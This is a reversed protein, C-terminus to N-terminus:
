GKSLLGDTLSQPSPIFRYELTHLSFIYFGKDGCSDDQYIPYPNGVYIIQCSGFTNESRPHFHGSFVRNTRSALERPDIGGTFISQPGSKCHSIALHGFVADCEPIDGIGCGWPALFVRRGGTLVAEGREVIRFSHSSFVGGLERTYSAAGGVCHNGLILTVHFKSLVEAVRKGVALTRKNEPHKGHFFDGLFYVEEVGMRQIELSFWESWETAVELWIPSGHHIGIHLDTFLAVGRDM